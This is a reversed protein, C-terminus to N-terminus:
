APVKSLDHTPAGEVPMLQVKGPKEAEIALAVARNIAALSYTGNVHGVITFRMSAALLFATDAHEPPVVGAQALAYMLFPVQQNPLFRDLSRRQRVAIEARRAPNYALKLMEM